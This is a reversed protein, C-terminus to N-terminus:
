PLNPSSIPPANGIAPLQVQGQSTQGAIAIRIEPNAVLTDPLKLNIQYLGAFGPALGAYLVNAAPIAV